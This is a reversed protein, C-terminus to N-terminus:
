FVFNQFKFSVQFHSATDRLFMKIQARIIIYLEMQKALTDLQACQKATSITKGPLVAIVLRIITHSLRPKDVRFQHRKILLMVRGHGQYISGSESLHVNLWVSYPPESLVRHHM